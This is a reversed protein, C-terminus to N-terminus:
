QGPPNLSSSSFNVAGPRRNEFESLKFYGLQIKDDQISDGNVSTIVINYKQKVQPSLIDAIEYLDDVDVGYKNDIHAAAGPFGTHRFFATQKARNIAEAKDTAALVIKYHFEEFENEKYGGLNLFFLRLSSAPVTEDKSVIEVKHGDVKTIERWGDMHLKNAGPWFVNIDPILQHITEGIGFFVDHQEINRGAPTCGLLVMFLKPM